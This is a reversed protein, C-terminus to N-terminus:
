RFTSGAVSSTEMFLTPASLKSLKKTPSTFPAGSRPSSRTPNRVTPPRQSVTSPSRTTAVVSPAPRWEDPLELDEVM